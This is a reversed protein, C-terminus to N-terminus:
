DGDTDSATFTPAVKLGIGKTLYSASTPIFGQKIWDIMAKISLPGKHNTIYKQHDDLMALRAIDTTTLHRTLYALFATQATGDLNLM